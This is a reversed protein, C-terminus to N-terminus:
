GRCRINSQLPQYTLLQMQESAIWEAPKYTTVGQIAALLRSKFKEQTIKTTKPVGEKHSHPHSHISLPLFTYLRREKEKGPDGRAGKGQM